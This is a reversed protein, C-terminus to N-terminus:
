GSAPSSQLCFSFPIASSSITPHWWLSLPCSDSCAGPSPTPCSLRTHQLGHPWLSNCSQTVSCHSCGILYMNFLLSKRWKVTYCLFSISYRNAISLWEQIWHNLVLFMWRQQSDLPWAPPEEEQRGLAWDLVTIPKPWEPVLNQQDVVLKATGWAM